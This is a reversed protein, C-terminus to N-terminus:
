PRIRCLIRCPLYIFFWMTIITVLAGVVIGAIDWGLYVDSRKNVQIIPIVYLIFAILSVIYSFLHFAWAIIAATITRKKVLCIFFLNM